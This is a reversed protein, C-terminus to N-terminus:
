FRSGLTAYAGGGPVPALDFRPTFAPASSRRPERKGVQAKANGSSASNHTIFLYTAVGLAVVGVALSIDAVLLKTKAADVDSQACSHTIGCSDRMDSVDKKGTLGFYAFSGLAVVGIGGVVFAAIPPGKNEEDGGAGGGGGGGGGVGAGVGAGAAGAGFTATLARNKEGERIVVQQEWPQEGEVEIRV